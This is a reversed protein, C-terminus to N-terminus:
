AWERSVRRQHRARGCCKVIDGDVSWSPVGDYGDYDTVRIAEGGQVPVVFLNAHEIGEDSSYVIWHGDPSFSPEYAM